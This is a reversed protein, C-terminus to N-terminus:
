ATRAASTASVACAMFTPSASSSLAVSASMGYKTACFDNVTTANAVLDLCEGCVVMQSVVATQCGCKTAKEESGLKACPKLSELWPACQRPFEPSRSRSDELAAMVIEAFALQATASPPLGDIPFHQAAHSKPRALALAAYALFLAFQFLM